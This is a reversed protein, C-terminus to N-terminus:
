DRDGRMGVPGICRVEFLNPMMAILLKLVADDLGSARVSVGCGVAGCCGACPGCGGVGYATAGPALCKKEGVNASGLDVQGLRRLQM